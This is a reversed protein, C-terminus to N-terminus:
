EKDESLEKKDIPIYIKGKYEFKVGRELAKKIKKELIDGVKPEEEEKEQVIPKPPEPLGSGRVNNEQDFNYYGGDIESGGSLRSFWLNKAFPRDKPKAILVASKEFGMKALFRAYEEVIDKFLFIALENKSFESIQITFIGKERLTLVRKEEPKKYEDESAISELKEVYASDLYYESKEQHNKVAVDSEKLLINYERSVILIKGSPLYNFSEASWSGNTNIEADPKSRIRAYAIDRVTAPELGREALEDLAKNFFNKARWIIIKEDQFERTIM